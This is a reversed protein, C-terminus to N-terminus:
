LCTHPSVKVAGGSCACITSRVVQDRIQRTCTGLDRNSKGTECTHIPRRPASDGSSGTRGPSKDYFGCRNLYRTCLRHIMTGGSSSFPPGVGHFSIQPEAPMARRSIRLLKRLASPTSPTEEGAASIRRAIGKQTGLHFGGDGAKEGGM